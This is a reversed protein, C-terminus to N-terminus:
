IGNRHGRFGININITYSSESSFAGVPTKCNDFERVSVVDKIIRIRVRFYSILSTTSM